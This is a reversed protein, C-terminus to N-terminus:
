PPPPTHVWIMSRGLDGPASVHDAEIRDLRYGLRRPVAASRRNAEDCHIEVREVGPLALAAATLAARRLRSSAAAPRRPACGTASRSPTPASGATSGAAASCTATTPTRRHPLRLRSGGDWQEIAGALFAATDARTQTPGRCSRGCTTAARRSRRTCRTSTTPGTGDCCPASTPSSSGNPRRTWAGHEGSRVREHCTNLARRAGAPVAALAEDSFLVFRVDTVDTPTSPSPACPSTPPTTSRGATSAPRCPPSPSRARGSSTPWACRRATARPWCTPATRAVALVGSRRRPDGLAGADGRGRDGGGARDAALRHARGTGPPGGAPRARRRAPDGRRRRRRGDARQQRRQRRRRRGARRHRGQRDHHGDGIAEVM